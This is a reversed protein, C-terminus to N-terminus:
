YKGPRLLSFFSRQLADNDLFAGRMVSNTMLSEDDKVGRWHMCFHEAEMVVALGDPRVHRELEDALMLVAEEQIQPRCMIWDCIRAFKSIGILDAGKSPLVGIWVRGMIPCFHHSCASRVKLPGVIMLENLQSVNPFATSSPASQYRGSFVEDLFMKAIRRATGSTNHDNDTDIVLARLVEDMRSEIELRLEALEGDKLFCAINDNSKFDQGAKTLRCRIRDSVKMTALSDDSKVCSCFHSTSM